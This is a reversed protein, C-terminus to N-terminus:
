GNYPDVEIQTIADLGSVIEELIEHELDIKKISYGTTINAQILIYLQHNLWDYSIDTLIERTKLLTKTKNKSFEYLSGSSEM